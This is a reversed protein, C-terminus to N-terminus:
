VRWKMEEDSVSGDGARPKTMIAMSKYEGRKFREGMERLLDMAGRLDGSKEM